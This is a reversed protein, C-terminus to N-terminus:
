NPWTKWLAISEKLPKAGGESLFLALGSDPNGHERAPIDDHSIFGNMFVRGRWGAERPWLGKLATLSPKDEIGKADADTLQVVADASDGVFVVNAVRPYTAHYKRITDKLENFGLSQGLYYSWDRSSNVDCQRDSACTSAAMAEPIFRLEKSHLQMVKYGFAFGGTEKSIAQFFDGAVGSIGSFEAGMGGGNALFVHKHLWGDTQDNVGKALRPLISLYSTMDPNGNEGLRIGAIWHDLCKERARNIVEAMDTAFSVIREERMRVRRPRDGPRFWIRQHLIFRVSGKIKGAAKAKEMRSLFDILVEVRQAPTYRREAIFDLNFREIAAAQESTRNSKPTAYAQLYARVDADGAVPEQSLKERPDVNLEALNVGQSELAAMWQVPSLGELDPEISERPGRGRQVRWKTKVGSWQDAQITPQDQPQCSDAYAPGSMCFAILLAVTARM